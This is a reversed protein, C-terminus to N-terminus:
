SKESMKRFLNKRHNENTIFDHPEHCENVEIQAKLNNILDPSCWTDNKTYYANIKARIDLPIDVPSERKGIVREEHKALQFTKLIEEDTLHALDSSILELKKRIKVIASQIKKSHTPLKVLKLILKGRLTPPGLFPHLLISRSIWEPPAQKHLELAFYGGLSHGILTVPSKVKEQFAQLQSLHSDLITNMASVSDNSPLLAPYRSVTVVASPHESIIEEAWLKYFHVAPPNGPVIFYNM